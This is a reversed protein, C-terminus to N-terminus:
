LMIRTILLLAFIVFVNACAVDVGSGSQFGINIVICQTFNAREFRQGLVHNVSPVSVNLVPKDEELQGYQVFVAFNKEMLNFTENSKSNNAVLCSPIKFVCRGVGDITSSLKTEIGSHEVDFVKEDEVYGTKMEEGTCYFVLADDQTDSEALTVSVYQQGNGIGGSLEMTFSEDTQEYAFFACNPSLISCDSPYRICEKLGNCSATDFVEYDKKMDEVCTYDGEAVGLPDPSMFVSRQKDHYSLGGDANKNGMALLFHYGSTLLDFSYNRNESVQKTVCAPRTFRCHGIGNTTKAMVNIVSDSKILTTPPHYLRRIVASRVDNGDCYYVDADQMDGTPAFGVAVYQQGNGTGGSLEMEFDNGVQTFSFFLCDPSSPHCGTPFTVCNKSTACTSSDVVEKEFDIADCEYDLGAPNGLPLAGRTTLRTDNGHYLMKGDPSMKGMALLIFYTEGPFDFDNRIGASIEKTVCAKRFFVCQAVGNESSTKLVQITTDNLDVPRVERKRIVASRLENGTCYYLDADHMKNEPAFAVAMYSGGNGTGGSLEIEFRDGVQRIAFFMCHPQNTTCPSPVALCNKGNKSCESQDVPKSYEAYIASAFDTKEMNVARYTHYQMGGQADLYGTATLVHYTEKEFDFDYLVDNSISKQVKIPRLFTCKLKGGDASVTKLIAGNLKPLEIPVTQLEKITFSKLLANTCFYGDADQMLANPGFAVAVYRRTADQPQIETSIEIEFMSELRLFKYKFEIEASVWTAGLVLVATTIIHTLLKM